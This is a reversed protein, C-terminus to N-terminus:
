LSCSEGAIEGARDIMRVLNETEEPPNLLKAGATLAQYLNEYYSTEPAPVDEPVVTEEQFSAEAAPYKRDPASLDAHLEKAPGPADKLLRLKWENGSAPLIACGRSGYVAYRFVSQAAAQNIDLDATVTGYRLLLKVADDADGLSLVRDATCALIQGPGDFLYNAQDVLHSGYNLLMGGGNKRLAQWDNRRSFGERLMKVLFVKGLRGSRILEKLFVNHRSIRMPQFVTLIRNNEKAAEAMTRFQAANLAAPKDCFVHCGRELAAVTQEAHFCTPSAIVALDFTEHKLADDLTRFGSIGYTNKCETLREEVPDVAATVEYGKHALLAPLHTSWGIRGLGVLVTRIKSDSM